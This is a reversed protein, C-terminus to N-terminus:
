LQAHASFYGGGWRAALRRRPQQESGPGRVDLGGHRPREGRREDAMEIRVEELHHVLRHAVQTGHEPGRAMMRDRHGARPAGAELGDHQIQELGAILHDHAHNSVEALPERLHRAARAGDDAGDLRRETLHDGRLTDRCLEGAPGRLEHRQDVGLRGRSGPLRDFRDRAARAIVTRQEGEVAHGRQAAHRHRHVVPAHVGGARAGLFTEAGRRPEAGDREPGAGDIRHTPAPPLRGGPVEVHIQDELVPAFRAAGLLAHEVVRRRHRHQVREAFGQPQHDGFPELGAPRTVTPRVLM